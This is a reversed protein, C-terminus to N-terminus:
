QLHHHGRGPQVHAPVQERPGRPLSVGAIMM